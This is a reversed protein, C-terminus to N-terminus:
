EFQLAYTRNPRWRLRRKRRGAMHVASNQLFKLIKKINHVIWQLNNEMLQKINTKSLSINTASFLWIDPSIWYHMYHPHLFTMDKKRQM